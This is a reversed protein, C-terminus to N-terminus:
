VKFRGTKVVLDEIGAAAQESTVLSATTVEGISRSETSVRAMLSRIGQSLEELKGMGDLVALSSLGMEASSDRVVQTAENIEGLAVILQKSGENQEALANKVSLTLDNVKGILADVEGFTAGTEASAKVVHEISGRVQHLEKTSRKAHSGAEEALTRIERAVVAFGAGSSGAHAAEIAANMALLNTRAAIGTIAANVEQLSDSQRAIAQSAQAAEAIRLRGRQAAEVLSALEAAILDISHGVSAINAVMEHVSATGETVGAAQVEISSALRNTGAAIERVAAMSSNVGAHQQEVLSEVRVVAESIKAVAEASTKMDIRLRSGDQALQTAGGQVDRVLAGIQQAFSNFATAMRGIEDSREVGLRRTLDGDGSAVDSLALELRILPRLSSRVIWYIVLLIILLTTAGALGLVVSTSVVPAM